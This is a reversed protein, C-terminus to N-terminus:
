ANKALTCAVNNDQRDGYQISCHPFLSMLEKIDLMINGIALSPLDQQTIEEVVLLCDSEVILNAISQHLCLQLGWLIALLKVIKPNTLIKPSSVAM